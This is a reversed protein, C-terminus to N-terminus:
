LSRRCLELPLLIFEVGGGGVEIMKAYVPFHVAILLLSELWRPQLPQVITVLHRVLVTLTEGGSETNSVLSFLQHVSLILLPQLLQLQPVTLEVDDLYKIVDDKPKSPFPPADDALTLSMLGVMEEILFHLHPSNLHHHNEVACEGLEQLCKACLNSVRPHQILPFLLPLLLHFYNPVASKNGRAISQIAGLLVEESHNVLVLANIRPIIFAPSIFALSAIADMVAEEYLEMKSSLFTLLTAINSEVIAEVKDSVLYTVWQPWEFFSSNTHLLLRTIIEIQFDVQMFHPHTTIQQIFLRILHPGCEARVEDMSDFVFQVRSPHAHEILFNALISASLKSMSKDGHIVFWFLSRLIPLIFGSSTIEILKSLIDLILPHHLSLKFYNRTDFLFPVPLADSGTMTATTPSTIQSSMPNTTTPSTVQSLTPNATTSPLLLLHLWRPLISTLDDVRGAMLQSAHLLLRVCLYPEITPVVSVARFKSLYQSLKM